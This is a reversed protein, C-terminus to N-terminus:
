RWTWRAVGRAPCRRRRQGSKPRRGRGAWGPPPHRRSAASTRRCSGSNGRRRRSVGALRRLGPEPTWCSTPPNGFGDLGDAGVVAADDVVVAGDPLYNVPQRPQNAVGAVILGPVPNDVGEVNRAAQVGVEVLISVRLIVDAGPQYEALLKRLPKVLQEPRAPTAGLGQGPAPRGYHWNRLWLAKSQPM